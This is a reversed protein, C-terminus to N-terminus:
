CFSDTNPCRIIQWTADMRYMTLIGNGLTTKKFVYIQTGKEPPGPIFSAIGYRSSLLALLSTKSAITTDSTGWLLDRDMCCVMTGISQPIYKPTLVTPNSEDKPYLIVEVSPHSIIYPRITDFPNPTPTIGNSQCTNRPDNTVITDIPPIEELEVIHDLSTAYHIAQLKGLDSLRDKCSTVMVTRGNKNVATQQDHDNEPKDEAHRIVITAQKYTKKYNEKPLKVLYSRSSNLNISHEIGNTRNSRSSNLNTAHEMSQGHDQNYM